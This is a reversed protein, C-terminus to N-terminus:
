EGSCERLPRHQSYSARLTLARRQSYSARLTIMSEAPSASLIISKALLSPADNAQKKETDLDATSKKHQQPSCLRVIFSRPCFIRVTADVGDYGGSGIRPPIGLISLDAEARAAEHCHRDAAETAHRSGGGGISGGNNDDDNDLYISIQRPFIPSTLQGAKSNM